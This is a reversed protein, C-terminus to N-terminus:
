VVIPPARSSKKSYYFQTGKVFYATFSKNIFFTRKINETESTFYYNTNLLVHLQSCDVEKEHIHQDNISKCVTHEHNEYAHVVQIISPIFLVFVSLLAIHKKFLKM